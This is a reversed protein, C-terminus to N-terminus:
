TTAVGGVFTFAITPSHIVGAWTITSSIATVDSSSWSLTRCSCSNNEGSDSLSNNNENSITNGHELKIVHRHLKFNTIIVM